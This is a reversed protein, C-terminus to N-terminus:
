LTLDVDKKKFLGKLDYIVNKKYLIKNINEIKYSKFKNHKVAVILCDYKSQNIKDIFNVNYKNKVEDINVLPDFVYTQFNKKLGNYLNLVRTNRIDNCNEKFTFGLILIKINKKTIKKEIIKQSLNKIIYNHMNDNLFRGSTIIKPNISIKKALYTLYYPDVGICHGGVLGPYFKQFNWKTSAAKLVEYTDINLKNFIMSLENILAINLDRQTNEIVKASEAVKISSVVHTGAKIISKYVKDITSTTKKDSGSVIKTINTLTNIKDGPNIREPSYGLYFDKLYKLKSNKEILPACFEETLGPYVTSEFVIIDNPSVVESVLLCASKIFKLDPKKNKKIPTPVTIIYFNSVKLDDINNTFILNSSKIITKKNITKNTDIGLKLENLRKNNTDFAVVSFKTSLEVALPLGVYGLGMVAIKYKRFFNISM